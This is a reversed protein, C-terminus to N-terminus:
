RIEGVIEEINIALKKSTDIRKMKVLGSLELYKQRHMNLLEIDMEPKRKKAEEVSVDLFFLYDPKPFMNMLLKFVKSRSAYDYHAYMDYFYRDLVRNRFAVQFLYRALYEFYYYVLMIEQMLSFKKNQKNMSEAIKYDKKKFIWSILKTTPLFPKWGFYLAKGGVKEAIKRTLISKGSGDTGIFCITRGM